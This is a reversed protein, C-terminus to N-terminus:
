SGTASRTPHHLALNRISACPVACRKTWRARAGQADLGTALPIAAEYISTGGAIVEVSTVDVWPAARVRLHAKVAGRSTLTAGPRAEDIQLDLLPGSTVFAAATGCRKSSSEGHRAAGGLLRAEM